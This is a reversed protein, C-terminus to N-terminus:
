KFFFDRPYNFQVARKQVADARRCEWEPETCLLPSQAEGKLSREHAKSLFSREGLDTEAPGTAPPPCGGRQRGKVSWNRRQSPSEATM